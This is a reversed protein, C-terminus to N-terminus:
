QQSGTDGELGQLAAQRLMGMQLASIISLWGLETPTESLMDAELFQDKKCM